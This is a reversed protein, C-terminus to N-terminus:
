METHRDNKRIQGNQLQELRMFEDINYKAKVYDQMSKKAERYESYSKRKLWFKRLSRM